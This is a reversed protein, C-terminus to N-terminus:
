ISVHRANFTFELKKAHSYASSVLIKTSCASQFSSVVQNVHNEEDLTPEM